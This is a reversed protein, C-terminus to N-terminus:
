PTLTKVAASVDRALKVEQAARPLDAVGRVPGETLLRFMDALKGEPIRTMDHDRLAALTADDGSQAAASALRLLTGAQQDTLKGDPPVTHRALSRLSSLTEPWNQAAESLDARLRASDATDLAALAASASGLDGAAAAAKAFTM